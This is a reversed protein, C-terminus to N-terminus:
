LSLLAQHAATWLTEFHRVRSFVCAYVSLNILRYDKGEESM